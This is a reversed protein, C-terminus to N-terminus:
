FRKTKQHHGLASRIQESVPSCTDLLLLPMAFRRSASQMQELRQKFENQFATRLKKSSTDAELQGEGDAFRLRGVAPMDKELPDFIFATLVDNHEALRTVYRRTEPNIGNGDTILCVLCDHRALHSVQKLAQNLKDADSKLGPDANLAHNKEVVQKLIQM